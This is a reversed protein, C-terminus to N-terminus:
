KNVKETERANRKINRIVSSQKVLILDYISKM